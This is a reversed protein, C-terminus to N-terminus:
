RGAKGEENFPVNGVHCRMEMIMCAEPAESELVAELADTEVAERLSDKQGGTPITPRRRAVEFCFAAERWIQLRRRRYLLM